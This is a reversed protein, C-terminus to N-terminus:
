YPALLKTIAYCVIFIFLLLLLRQTLSLALKM